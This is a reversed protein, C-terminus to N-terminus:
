YNAIILIIHDFCIKTIALRIDFNQFNTKELNLVKANKFNDLKQYSKLLSTISVVIMLVM